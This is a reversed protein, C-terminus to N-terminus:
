APRPVGRPPPPHTERPMVRRAPCRGPRPPGQCRGRLAPAGDRPLRPREAPSRTPGELGGMVEAEAPSIGFFAADFDRIGDIFGGWKTTAKGMVKPNAVYFLDTSWRDAPVERIGCRGESLLSWFEKPGTVRGPLKCGIGVIAVPGTVRQREINVSDSRVFNM